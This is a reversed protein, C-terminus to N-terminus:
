GQDALRQEAHEILVELNQIAKRLDEIGNKKDWRSVYKIVSGEIFGLKNALIYEMPQIAMNKYHDGGVQKSLATGGVGLGSTTYRAAIGNAVNPEAPGLACVGTCASGCGGSCYTKYGTSYMERSDSQEQAQKEKENLLTELTDLRLQELDRMKKFVDHVTDTVWIRKYNEMRERLKVFADM